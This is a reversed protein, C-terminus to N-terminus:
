SFRAKFPTSFNRSLRVVSEDKLTIDYDGNLRSKFNVVENINVISSKHVRIFTTPDLEELISKLTRAHLFSGSPTVLRIYPTESQISIIDATNIVMMEGKYSLSLHRLYETKTASSKPQTKWILNILTYIGISAYLHESMAYGFGKGLSFTHDLLLTSLTYIVVPFTLMHLATSFVVSVSITLIKNSHPFIQLARRQLWTIPLFLLWFSNFLLSESWYFSYSNINSDILDQALGLTLIASSILTVKLFSSYKKNALAQSWQM